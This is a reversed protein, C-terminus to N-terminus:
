EVERISQCPHIEWCTARWVNTGGPRTNQANQVHERDFFLWGRVEVKKGKLKKIQEYTYEGRSYRTIEVVMATENSANKLNSVLEIHIDRQSKDKAHCNCTESGGWKVDHVYGVLVAYDNNSFRATDNGPTLIKKLTVKRNIKKPLDTRNKLLDSKQHKLNRSDGWPPCDKVQSFSHTLGILSIILLIKKM